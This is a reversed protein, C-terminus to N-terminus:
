RSKPGPEERQPHPLSTVAALVAAEGLDGERCPGPVRGRELERHKWLAM